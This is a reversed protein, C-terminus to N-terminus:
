AATYLREMDILEVDPRSEAARQLGAAFGGRAFLLLKPPEPVQEPPLLARLHDLRALQEPGVVTSTAKVEGIAMVRRPRQPLDQIAVVDVEHGQRHERCSLVASRVLNARGGLTDADAHVQCWTRALDELHPGYIRASVTDTVDRWVQRGGLVALEAQWPQIVLQHLRIMPEALRYVPRRQRFADEVRDVLRLQELVALPHSLASDPRGLASAIAGRRTAGRAIAALVSFYVAPEVIEPEEYLLVNGERHLASVPSLVGDIVWRDFDRLARPPRGGSMGRYAPTGGALAHVRFALEPDACGWFAAAERFPFPHVMMELSARGRLPATGSLLRRMTTLASGCLILRSRSMQMGRGRPTLAAQLLSPLAPEVEMLYPFEDVIVPVPDGAGEWLRLLADVAERWDRFDVPGAAGTFRGYAEGLDRLQQRGSQQTAVFMFGGTARALHELLFTKGQRRRGYVLGLSAGPEPHTAFDVLSAWERDRGSVEVPKKV